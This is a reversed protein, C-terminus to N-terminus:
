QIKPLKIMDGLTNQWEIPRFQGFGSAPYFTIEGFYVRGDIVYLDVRLFPIDISLKRCIEIMENLVVPCSVPTSGNQINSNSGNQNNPILGIFDQHQWRIDYFDITEKTHRNRIVQCYKPEGNFCYFKYDALDTEGCEINTMLKEAIIRKRLNKYPWERYACYIDSNLSSKLKKTASEKDFKSKDRCIVVGCSGGSHTTKLVFNHPLTDWDIEDFKDWVGLTPIIYDEGIQEAVYKKVAFKDVMTTYEKKRNYVKLWQMKESFTKPNKWDIWDGMQCRYRLSLYQKDPLWGLFNKVVSDCFQSRNYLLYNIARKISVM